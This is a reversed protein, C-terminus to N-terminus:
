SSRPLPRRSARGRHASTRAPVTFGPAVFTTGGSGFGGATGICFPGGRPFTQGPAFTLVGKSSIKLGTESPTANNSSYLLSLAGAASATNNSVPEAQFVFEAPERDCHQQQVGIGHFGAAGLEQGCDCYGHGDNGPEAYRPRKRRRERGQSFCFPIAWRAPAIPGCLFSIPPAPEPWQPLSQSTQALNGKWPPGGEDAFRQNSTVSIRQVPVWQAGNAKRQRQIDTSGAPQTDRASRM